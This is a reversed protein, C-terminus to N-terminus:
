EIHKLSFCHLAQTLHSPTTKKNQTGCVSHWSRPTMFALASKDIFPSCFLSCLILCGQILSLLCFLCVLLLGCGVVVVFSSLTANVFQFRYIGVHSTSPSINFTTWRGKPARMVCLLICYVCQDDHSLFTMLISLSCLLNILLFLSKNRM